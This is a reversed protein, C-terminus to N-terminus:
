LYLWKCSNALVFPSIVNPTGLSSLSLVSFSVKGTDAGGLGAAIAGKHSSQDVSLKAPRGSPWTSHCILCEMPSPVGSRSIMWHFLTLWKKVVGESIVNWAIRDSFVRPLPLM